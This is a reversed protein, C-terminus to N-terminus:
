QVVVILIEQKIPSLGGCERQVAQVGPWIGNIMYMLVDILDTGVSNSFSLTFYVFVYVYKHALMLEYDSPTPTNRGALQGRWM